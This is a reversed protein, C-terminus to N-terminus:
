RGQRRRLVLLAFAAAGGALAALFGPSAAAALARGADAMLWQAAAPLLAGVEDPHEVILGRTGGGGAGANIVAHLAQEGMAAVTRGIIGIGYAQSLVLHSVGLTGVVVPLGWRKLWASAAMTGLILPSLWLTALLLGLWIRLALAAAALLLGGWPLSWWAELGFVKGVIVPSVLLAGLLGAAVAAWPFALLHMLLTAGVSQVNSVPMSLWFEISRDQTDRRALGPAMLLSAGWALGVTLAVLGMTVMMTLALAGPMEEDQGLHIEGFTAILLLVCLPLVLLVIWGRQHQLWERRLLTAFRNM